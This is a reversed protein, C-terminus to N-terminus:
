PTSVLRTHLILGVAPCYRCDNPRNKSPIIYTPRPTLDKYAKHSAALRTCSRTRWRNKLGLVGEYDWEEKFCYLSRILTLNFPHLISSMYHPVILTADSLQAMYLGHTFSILQNGANGWAFETIVVLRSENCAKNRPSSSAVARLRDQRSRITDLGIDIGWLRPASWLVLVFFAAFRRYIESM